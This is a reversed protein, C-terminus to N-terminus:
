RRSEGRCPYLGILLNMRSRMDSSLKVSSKSRLHLEHKRADSDSEVIISIKDEWAKTFTHLSVTLNMFLQAGEEITVATRDQLVSKYSFSEGGVDATLWHM